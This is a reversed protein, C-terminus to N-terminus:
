SRASPDKRNTLILAFLLAAGLGIVWGLLGKDQGQSSGASTLVATVMTAIWLAKM